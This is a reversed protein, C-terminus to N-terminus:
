EIAKVADEVIGIMGSHQQETRKVVANLAETFTVDMNADECAQAIRRVRTDEDTSSMVDENGGVRYKKAGEDRWGVTNGVKSTNGGSSNAHPVSKRPHQVGAADMQRREFEDESSLEITRSNAGMEAGSDSDVYTEGHTTSGSEGYEFGRSQM